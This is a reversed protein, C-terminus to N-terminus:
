AAERAIELVRDKEPFARSRGRGRGSERTVGAVAMRGSHFVLGALLAIQGPIPGIAAQAWLFPPGVFYLRVEM